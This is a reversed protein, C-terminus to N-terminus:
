CHVRRNRSCTGGSTKKPRPIWPGLKLPLFTLVGHVWAGGWTTSSLLLKWIQHDDWLYVCNKKRGGYVLPRVGGITCECISMREIWVRFDVRQNPDNYAKHM